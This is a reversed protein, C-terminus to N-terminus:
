EERSKTKDASQASERLNFVLRKHELSRAGFNLLLGKQLNTAKLYNIVQADENSSLRALAKLEVIVSDFCLFDAQYHTTLKVGVYHIPMHAERQFPIGQRSLEIAMAEQYVAELFGHGLESHVKMAAGIIAFTQPDRKSSDAGMQTIQPNNEM